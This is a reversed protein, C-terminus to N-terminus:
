FWKKKKFLVFCIVCTVVSLGIVYVYGYKWGLEPMYQFNMGYWGVLLTLPLFIATLVTFIKMVNNQEIDIQAQYAERAQEASERLTKVFDLLHEIRHETFTLQRLSEESLFSTNSTLVRDIMFLVQEYYLKIKLLERRITIIKSEIGKVPKKAILISEELHEIEKDKQELSDIDEATLIDFFSSLRKDESLGASQEFLTKGPGAGFFWVCTDKGIYFCIKATKKPAHVDLWTFVFFYGRDAVQACLHRSSKMRKLLDSGVIASIKEENMM